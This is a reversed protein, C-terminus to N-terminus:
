TRACRFGGDNGWYDPYGRDRFASCLSNTESFWGSGRLVKLSRDDDFWDACWEWVNGAMDFVGYPSIGKEYMGVPTTSDFKEGYNCLSEDPAEAGWPYIRGDIGRAAKEWITESPLTKGAWRAYADAEYWSVGVVPYDPGNWKEDRWYRPETHKWRQLWKWGEPSWFSKDRYGGADMFKEYNRNTVPYKDM